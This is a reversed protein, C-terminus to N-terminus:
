HRNFALNDDDLGIVQDNEDKSKVSEVWDLQTLEM